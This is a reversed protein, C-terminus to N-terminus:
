SEQGLIGVSLNFLCGCWGFKEFGRLCRQGPRVLLLGGGVWSRGSAYILVGWDLLGALLSDWRVASNNLHRKMVKNCFPGMPILTLHRFGLNIVGLINWLEQLRLCEAKQHGTLAVEILNEGSGGQCKKTAYLSLSVDSDLM